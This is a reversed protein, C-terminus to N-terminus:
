PHTGHALTVDYRSVLKRRGDGTHTATTNTHARAVGGDVVASGLFLRSEGGTDSTSSRSSVSTCAESSYM